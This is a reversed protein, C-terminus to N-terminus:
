EFQIDEIGGNITIDISDDAYRFCTTEDSGCTIIIDGPDFAQVKPSVLLSGILIFVSFLSFTIEKRINKM